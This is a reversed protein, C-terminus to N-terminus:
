PGPGSVRLAADRRRRAPPWVVVERAPLAERYLAWTRESDVGGAVFWTDADFAPAALNRAKLRHHRPDDDPAPHCLGAQDADVFASSGTTARHARWGLTSKGVGVPGLLWVVRRRVEPVSPVADPARCGSKASGGEDDSRSM